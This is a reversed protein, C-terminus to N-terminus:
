VLTMQREAGPAVVWSGRFPDFLGPLAFHEHVELFHKANGTVVIAGASIAIAAIRLDNGLALKRAKPATMVYNKLAPTERMAGFILAAVATEPLIQPQGFAVIRMLWPDLISAKEVDQRRVAEIGAKLEEITVITTFIDGPAQVDLWAVVNPDPRSRALQSIVDTDLVFL